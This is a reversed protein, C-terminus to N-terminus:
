ATVSQLFWITLAAVSLGAASLMVNVSDLHREIPDRWDGDNMVIRLEHASRLSDTVTLVRRLERVHAVRRAAITALLAVLSAGWLAWAFYFAIYM